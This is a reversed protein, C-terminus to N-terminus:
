LGIEFIALLRPIAPGLIVVFLAPFILLVMPFLMKVPAKRALEEARQRRRLRMEAAQEFLVKSLPVGLSDAQIVAATFRGVDAVGTRVAMEALARRRDRGMQFELLLSRFEDSLPNNWRHAVQAIAGDLSLGAEVSLALMDLSGPLAKRIENMRSRAIADVVLGPVLYGIGGGAILLGVLNLPGTQLATSLALAGIAGCLAVGFQLGLFEAPGLGIPEGAHQLRLRTSNILGAPTIRLFPRGVSRFSPVILRQVISRRKSHEPATLMLGRVFIELRRRQRGPMRKALELIAYLLTVASAAGLVGVAAPPIRGALPVTVPAPAPQPAPPAPRVVGRGQPVVYSGTVESIPTGDRSLRVAFDVSSGDPAHALTSRYSISYETRILESLGAYIGRLDASNPASFARGGNSGAAIAQLTPTDIATGVGVTHVPLGSQAARAIIAERSTRSATDFGDTLLVIARRAPPAVGAVLELGTNLADYIATNGAAAAANTAAVLAGKDNTLGQAVRVQDSFTVLAARDQPGLAQVMSAIAAKADALPRGAISGSVDLALVLVVPAVESALEVEAQRPEGQELIQVQAPTLGRVPRGEADTVRAVLRVLPFASSDVNGIQVRLPDEAVAPAPLALSLAAALAAIAGLRPTRSRFM